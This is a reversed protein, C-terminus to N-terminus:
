DDRPGIPWNRSQDGQGGDGAAANSPCCDPRTSRVDRRERDRPRPFGAWVLLGHRGPHDRTHRRSCGERRRPPLHPLPRRPPGPPAPPLPLTEQKLSCGALCGLVTIGVICGWAIPKDVLSMTSAVEIARAGPALTSANCCFNEFGCSVPILSGDNTKEEPKSQLAINEGDLYICHGKSIAFTHQTDGILWFYVFVICAVM